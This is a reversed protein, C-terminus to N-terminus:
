PLLCSSKKVSPKIFSYFGYIILLTFAAGASWIIANKVRRRVKVENPLETDM